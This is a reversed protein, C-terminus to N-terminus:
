SSSKVPGDIELRENFVAKIGGLGSVNNAGKFGFRDKEINVPDSV